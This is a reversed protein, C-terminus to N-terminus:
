SLANGAADCPPQVTMGVADLKEDIIRLAREM